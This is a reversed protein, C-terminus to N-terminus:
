INFKLCFIAIFIIFGVRHHACFNNIFFNIHRKKYELGKNSSDFAKIVGSLKYLQLLMFMLCSLILIVYYLNYIGLGLLSLSLLGICFVLEFLGIWFIINKGFLIASSKIKIKKDYELDALAYISDYAIVWCISLGYLYWAQIPIYSLNAAYAMILGWNFAAGLILQPCSFYRKALPYCSMLGLAVFSLKFALDPLALACCLDLCCLIFILVIAHRPKLQGSALPRTATRLVLKDFKYDCLDNIVCGLSRSIVIGCIFVLWLQWNESLLQVCISKLNSFNIDNINIVGLPMSLLLGWLTPWLLLLIPIPRDLRMLSLYAKM